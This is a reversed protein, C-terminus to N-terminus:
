SGRRATNGESPNDLDPELPGPGCGTRLFGGGVVISSTYCRACQSAPPGTTSIRWRDRGSGYVPPSKARCGERRLMEACDVVSCVPTSVNVLITSGSRGLGAVYLVKVPKAAGNDVLPEREPVTESHSAAGRALAPAADRWVAPLAPLQRKMPLRSAPQEVGCASCFGDEFRAQVGCASCIM